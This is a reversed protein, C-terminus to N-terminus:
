INTYFFFFFFFYDLGRLAQLQGKYHDCSRHRCRRAGIAHVLGQWPRRNEEDRLVETGPGFEALRGDPDGPSGKVPVGFHRVTITVNSGRAASSALTVEQTEPVEAWVPMEPDGFLNQAYVTWLARTGGTAQRSCAAPGVRGTIKLLCWFAQEYNDGVNIWSYRTNGVYAM